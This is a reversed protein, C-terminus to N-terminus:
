KTRAFEGHYKEAAECYAAHADEATDFLGLYRTKGNARISSVWRNRQSHWYAGKMGSACDKHMPVNSGNTFRTSERLNIIRNDHRIGNIHDIEGDPWKGYHMAWAVRHARVDCKEVRSRRYGSGCDAVFAQKGSYKTNWRKDKFEVKKWHFIGTDPNYTLLERLQEPTPLIRKTM